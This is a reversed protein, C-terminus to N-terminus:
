LRRSVTMPSFLPWVIYASIIHTIEPIYGQFPPHITHGEELGKGKRRTPIHLEMLYRLGHPSGSSQFDKVIFFFISSCYVLSLWPLGPSFIEVNTLLSSLFLSSQQLGSNNPKKRNHAALSIRFYGTYDLWQIEIM